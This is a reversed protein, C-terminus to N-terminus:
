HCPPQRLPQPLPLLRPPRKGWGGRGKREKSGSSCCFSDSSCCFSDSSCNRSCNSNSSNAGPPPRTGRHSRRQTPLPLSICKSHHRSSRSFIWTRRRSERAGGGGRGGRGGGRAVYPAPLGLPAAVHPARKNLLRIALQHSPECWCEDRVDLNKGYVSSVSSFHNVFVFKARFLVFVLCNM